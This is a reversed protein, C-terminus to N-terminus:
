WDSRRSGPESEEPQGGDQDGLREAEHAEHGVNFNHLPSEWKPALFQEADPHRVSNSVGSTIASPQAERAQRASM